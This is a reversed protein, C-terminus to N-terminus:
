FLSAIELLKKTVVDAPLSDHLYYKNIKNGDPVVIQSPLEKGMKVLVTLSFTGKKAYGTHFTRADVSYFAGEEHLDDIVVETRVREKTQVTEFQEKSWFANYLTAEDGKFVNMERNVVQGLGLYSYLIRNGHTHIRQFITDEEWFHGRLQNGDKTEGLNFALFGAISNYCKVTGSHTLEMISKKIRKRNFGDRTLVIKSLEDIVEM